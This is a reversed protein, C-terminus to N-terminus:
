KGCRREAEMQDGGERGGKTEGDRWRETQKDGKSAGVTEGDGECGTIQVWIRLM